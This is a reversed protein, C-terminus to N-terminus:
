KKKGKGKTKCAMSDGKKILRNFAVKGFLDEQNCNLAICLKIITEFNAKKLDLSGNEYKQIAVESCSSLLALENQTIGYKQRIRKLNNEM